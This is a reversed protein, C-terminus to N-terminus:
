KKFNTFHVANEEQGYTSSYSKLTQSTISGTTSFSATNKGAPETINGSTRYTCTFVRAKRACKKSNTQRYELLATLLVKQIAM